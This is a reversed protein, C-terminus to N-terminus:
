DNAVVEATAHLGDPHVTIVVRGQRLDFGQDFPSDILTLFAKEAVQRQYHPSSGYEDANPSHAYPSQATITHIVEAM